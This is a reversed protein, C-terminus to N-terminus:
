FTQFVDIVRQHYPDSPFIELVFPGNVYVRMQYGALDKHGSERLRRLEEAQERDNVDFKRVVFASNLEASVEMTTALDPFGPHQTIITRTIPIGGARLHDAVEELTGNKNGQAIHQVARVPNTRGTALMYGGLGLCPVLCLCGFLLAAAGGALWLRRKSRAPASAPM